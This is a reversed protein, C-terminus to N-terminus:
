PMHPPLSVSTTDALIMTGVPETEDKRERFEQESKAVTLGVQVLQM